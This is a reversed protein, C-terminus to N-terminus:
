KADELVRITRRGEFFLDLNEAVRDPKGFAIIATIDDVAEFLTVADAWGEVVWIDKGYGIRGIGRPGLNRKEWRGDDDRRGSILQIGCVEWNPFSYMPIMLSGDVTRAGFSYLPIGKAQSYPHLYVDNVIASGREWLVLAYPQTETAHHGIPKFSPPPPPRAPARARAPGDPLQILGRSVLERAIDTGDCGGFCTFVPGKAGESLVFKTATKSGGCLVCPGRWSQGFRRLGLNNALSQTNYNAQM